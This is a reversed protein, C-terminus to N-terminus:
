SFLKNVYAVLHFPSTNIKLLYDDAGAKKAEEEMQFESYNSLIAIKIQPNIQKLVPIVDVGSEGSLNQDIFAADANFQAAEKILHVTDAYHKVEYGASSLAKSYLNALVAEDELLIIKKNTKKSM